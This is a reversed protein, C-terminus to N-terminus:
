QKIVLVNFQANNPIAVNNQNFIEWKSRVTNYYVGIPSNNYVIGVPNLKQTVFLLCNADGNCMPNDVDTGNASLKNTPTATHVFAFKNTGAVRIAGNDVELAVGVGSGSYKAEVGIGNSSFTEGRVGSSAATLDKTLGYVGFGSPSEGYVGWGSGAQYGVVGIGTGGTSNNIGRVGASYGGPTTSTILGLVGSVANKVDTGNTTSDATGVVGSTFGTTATNSGGVAAGAGQNTTAFLTTASDGNQNLALDIELEALRGSAVDEKSPVFMFIASGTSAALVVGNNTTTGDIWDKALDTLDLVLFQKAAGFQINIGSIEAAGKAPLASGKLTEENWVGTVPSLECTGAKIVRDVWLKLTAKSVQASTTGPPLTSLDFKFYLQQGTKLALSRTAGYTATPRAASSMTDDVLVMEAARGMMPGLWCSTLMLVRLSTVRLRVTTEM